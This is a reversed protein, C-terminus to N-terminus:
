RLLLEQPCRSTLLVKDAAGGSALMHIGQAGIIIEMEGILPLLPIVYHGRFHFPPLPAVLAMSVSGDTSLILSAAFPQSLWTM